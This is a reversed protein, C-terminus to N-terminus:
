RKPSWLVEEFGARLNEFRSFVFLADSLRNIYGIVEPRVHEEKSLAVIQREARRCITRAGHLLSARFSGGPLVFSKLEPLEQNMRDITAELLEIEEAGVVELTKRETEHPAALEAGLDFLRQQTLLLIEKIEPQIEGPYSLVEGLKANLEDIEGYASVKICDKSVLAGGVLHTM